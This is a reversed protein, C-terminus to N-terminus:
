LQLVMQSAARHQEQQVQHGPLVDKPHSVVPISGLLVDAQGQSPANPDPYCQRWRKFRLRHFFNFFM